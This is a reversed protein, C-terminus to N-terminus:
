SSFSKLARALAHRRVCVKVAGEPNGGFADQRNWYQFRLIHDLEPMAAAAETAQQDDPVFFLLENDNRM